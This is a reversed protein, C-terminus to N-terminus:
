SYSLHQTYMCIYMSLFVAFGGRIGILFQTCLCLRVQVCMYVFILSFMFFYVVEVLICRNAPIAIVVSGFICKFMSVRSSLCRFGFVICICIRLLHLYSRAHICVYMHLCIHVYMCIHVVHISLCAYLCTDILKDIRTHKQTNTRM